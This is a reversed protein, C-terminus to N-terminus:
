RGKGETRQFGIDALKQDAADLAGLGEENIRAEWGQGNWRTVPKGERVPELLEDDPRSGDPRKAFRIQRKKTGPIDEKRYGVRNDITWSRGEGKPPAQIPEHQRPEAQPPEIPDDGPQREQPIARASVTQEDIPAAQQELKAPDFETPDDPQAALDIPAEQQPQAATAKKRPM